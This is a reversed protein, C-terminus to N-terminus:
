RIPKHIRLEYNGFRLIESVEPNVAPFKQAPPTRLNELAKRNGESPLLINNAEIFERNEKDTLVFMFGVEGPRGKVWNEPNNTIRMVTETAIRRREYEEESMELSELFAAFSDKTDSDLPTEDADPLEEFSVEAEDRTHSDVEGREDRGSVVEETALSEDTTGLSEDTTRHMDSVIPSEGAVSSQSESTEVDQAGQHTTPKAKSEGTQVQEVTAKYIKIPAVPKNLHLYTFAFIGIVILGMIIFPWAKKFFLM